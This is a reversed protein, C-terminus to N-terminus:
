KRITPQTGLSNKTRYPVGTNQVIRLTLPGTETYYFAQGTETDLMVATKGAGGKAPFLVDEKVVHIKQADLNFHISQLNEAPWNGWPQREGSQMAGYLRAQLFSRAGGNAEIDAIMLDLSDKTNQTGDLHAILGRKSAPDWLVLATCGALFATQIYRQHQPSSIAYEGQEVYLADEPDFNRPPEIPALDPSGGEGTAELYNSWEMEAKGLQTEAKELFLKAQVFQNRQIAAKAEGLNRGAHNLDFTYQDKIGDAGTVFDATARILPNSTKGWEEGQNQLFRLQEEMRSQALSLKKDSLPEM